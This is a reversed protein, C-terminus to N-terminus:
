RCDVEEDQTPPPVVRWRKWDKFLDGIDELRYGKTEPILVFGWLLFLLNFGAYLFFPSGGSMALILPALKITIYQGLWDASGSLSNCKARLLQPYIEQPLIYHLPAQSYSSTTYGHYPTSHLTSTYQRSQSSLYTSIVEKPM